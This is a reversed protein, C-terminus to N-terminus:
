NTILYESKGAWSINSQSGVSTELANRSQSPKVNCDLPLTSYNKIYEADKKKEFISDYGRGHTCAVM